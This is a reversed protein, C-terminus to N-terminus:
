SPSAPVGSPSGSQVFQFAARMLAPASTLNLKEKIRARYTEITKVDLKLQEAIQKTEFGQGILEFVQLERDSLTDLASGVVPKQRGGVKNMLARSIMEPSLYIEGALVKRVAETLQEPKATKRLYGLAGAELVRQAYLQEEHASFVLVKVGPMQAILDWVLAFGHSENLTLDVIVLDPKLQPIETLAKQSDTSWGCLTLGLAKELHQSLFARIVPHDDVVYMRLGGAAPADASTGALPEPPHSHVPVYRPPVKSGAKKTNMRELNKEVCGWIQLGVGSVRFPPTEIRQSCWDSESGGDCLITEKGSRGAM